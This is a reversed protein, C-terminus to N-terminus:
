VELFELGNNTLDEILEITVDVIEAQDHALIVNVSGEQSLYPDSLAKKKLARLRKTRGNEPM